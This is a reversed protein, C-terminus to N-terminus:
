DAALMEVLRAKMPIVWNQKLRRVAPPQELEDCPHMQHALDFLDLQSIIKGDNNFTIFSVGPTEFYRGDARKGPGRNMWHTIARGESGVYVEQYPFTCGEWGKLM